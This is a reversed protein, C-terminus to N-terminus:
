IYPHRTTCFTLKGVDLGTSHWRIYHLSKLVDQCILLCLQDLFEFVVYQFADLILISIVHDLFGDFSYRGLMYLEDEVTERPVNLTEGDVRITTSDYLPHQFM